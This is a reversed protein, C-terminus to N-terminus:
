RSGIFTRSLAATGIERKLVAFATYGAFAFGVCILTAWIRPMEPHALVETLAPVFGGAAERTSIAKELLMLAFAAATYAITRVAVEVLGIRHGLPARDLVVVVKATVLALVLALSLGTFAIDYGKLVLYKLLEIVLFVAGFYLTALLVATLEHRIWHLAKM